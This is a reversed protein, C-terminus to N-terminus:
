EPDPRVTRHALLLSSPHPQIEFERTSGSASSNSLSIVSFRPIDAPVPTGRITTASETAASDRRSINTVHSHRRSPKHAQSAAVQRGAKFQAVQDNRANSVVKFHSEFRERKQKTTFDLDIGTADLKEVLPISKDKTKPRSRALKQFAHLDWVDLQNNTASLRTIPFDKIKPAQLTIRYM